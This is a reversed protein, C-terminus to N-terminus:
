YRSKGAVIRASSKTSAAGCCAECLVPETFTKLWKSSNQTHTDTNKATLPQGTTLPEFVRYRAQIPPVDNFTVLIVWFHTHFLKELQNISTRHHIIIHGNNIYLKKADRCERSQPLTGLNTVDKSSPRSFCLVKWKVSLKRQKRSLLHTNFVVSVFWASERSQKAGLVMLIWKSTKSFSNISSATSTGFFNWFQFSDHIFTNHM